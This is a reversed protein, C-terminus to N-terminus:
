PILELWTESSDGIGHVLLLAPGEGAMRFARRYGHVTRHHLTPRSDPVPRLARTRSATM